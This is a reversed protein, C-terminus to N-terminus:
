VHVTLYLSAEAEGFAVEVEEAEEEVEEQLVPHVAVGERLALDVEAAEVDRSVEEALGVVEQAM